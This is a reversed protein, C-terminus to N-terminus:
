DSQVSLKVCLTLETIKKVEESNSLNSVLYQVGKIEQGKRDLVTPRSAALARRFFCLNTLFLNPRGAYAAQSCAINM